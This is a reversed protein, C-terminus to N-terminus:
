EGPGELYKLVALRLEPYRNVLSRLFKATPRRKRQKLRSVTGPDVSIERALHSDKLSYAKQLQAIAELLEDM